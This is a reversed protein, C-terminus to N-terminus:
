PCRPVESPMACRNAVIAACAPLSLLWAPSGTVGGIESEVVKRWVPGPSCRSCAYLRTLLGLRSASSRLRDVSSPPDLADTNEDPQAAM